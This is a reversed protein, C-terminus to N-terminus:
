QQRGKRAPVSLGPVAVLNAAYTDGLRNRVKAGTVGPCETSVHVFPTLHWRAPRLAKDQRRDGGPRDIGCQLGLLSNNAWRLSGSGRKRCSGAPLMGPTAVTTVAGGVPRTPRRAQQSRDWTTISGFSYPPGKGVSTRGYCRSGSLPVTPPIETGSVRPEM